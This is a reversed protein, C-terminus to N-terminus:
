NSHYIFIWNRGCLLCVEDVNYFCAM